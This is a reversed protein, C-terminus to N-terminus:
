RCCVLLDLVRFAILKEPSRVKTVFDSNFVQIIYM